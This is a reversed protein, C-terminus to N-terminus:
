SSRQPPPPCFCDRANHCSPTVERLITRVRNAASARSARVPRAPSDTQQFAPRHRDAAYQPPPRVALFSALLCGGRPVVRDPRKSPLRHTGRLRPRAPQAGALLALREEGIYRGTLLSMVILASPCLQALWAYSDTMATAAGVIAVGVVLAAVTLLRGPAPWPLPSRM